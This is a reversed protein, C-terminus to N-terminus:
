DARYNLFQAMTIRLANEDKTEISKAWHKLCGPFIVTRNEKFEVIENYDVFCLEGGNFEGRKFMTIATLLSRDVHPLYEENIKYYNILTVDFNCNKLSGFFCNSNIAISSIKDDFLKRNLTLIKSENRNSAFFEDIFLSSNTKLPKNDIMAVHVKPNLPSVSYKKLIDLENNIILLENESFFDDILIYNLAGKSVPTIIM